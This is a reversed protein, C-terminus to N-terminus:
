SAVDRTLSSESLREYLGESTAREEVLALLVDITPTAIDKLRALEQVAGVLAGIEGTRHREFDQLMSMKHGVARGAAALRREIMTEDIEVGFADSVAKAELMCNVCLSRLGPEKTIRDLTALTLASIPNFCVNGWLKLWVSYRIDDRIPADFNAAHMIASLAEVRTSRTRDPEGLIFRNFEHHEIVGPEVVECAPDVVCGIAREPGIAKWQLGGPDVSNLHMGEFSSGERYFYWWPIGNMATVVVTDPGFLPLMSRAATYAQHSKLTCFVYDQPGFRSPDDSARVKATKQLGGIRLTLGKSSIASLHEGRAVVCVDHGALSLEAALYGGIAGAGFVCIKM